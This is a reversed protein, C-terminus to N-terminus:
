TSRFQFINYLVSVLNFTIVMKSITIVPLTFVKNAIHERAPHAEPTHSVKNAADNFSIRQGPARSYLLAIFVTTVKGPISAKLAASEM